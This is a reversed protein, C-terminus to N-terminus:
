KQGNRRLFGLGLLGVERPKVGLCYLAETWTNETVFEQPFYRVVWERGAGFAGFFAPGSEHLYPPRLGDRIFGLPVCGQVTEPKTAVPPEFKEKYTPTQFVFDTLQIEPDGLLDTRRMDWRYPNGVLYWGQGVLQGDQYILEDNPLAPIESFSTNAEVRM